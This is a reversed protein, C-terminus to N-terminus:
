ITWWTHNMFAAMGQIDEPDFLAVAAANLAGVSVGTVIDWAIEDPVLAALANIAGAQYSGKTGGGEM